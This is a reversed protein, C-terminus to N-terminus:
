DIITRDCIQGHKLPRAEEKALQWSAIKSKVVVRLKPRIHVSHTAVAVIVYHALKSTKWCSERWRVKAGVEGDPWTPDEVAGRDADDIPVEARTSCFQEWRLVLPARV